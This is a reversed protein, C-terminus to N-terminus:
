LTCPLSRSTSPLKYTCGNMLKEAHSHTLAHTIDNNWSEDVVADAVGQRRGILDDLKDVTRVVFIKQFKSSRLNCASEVGDDPSVASDYPTLAQLAQCADDIYDDNDM